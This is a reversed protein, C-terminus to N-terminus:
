LVSVGEQVEGHSWLAPADGMTKEPVNAPPHIPLSALVQGTMKIHLVLVVPPLKNWQLM